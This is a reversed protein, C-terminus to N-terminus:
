SRPSSRRWRSTSKSSTRRGDPRRRRSSRRAASTSAPWWTTVRSRKGSRRTSAAASRISPACGATPGPRLRSARRRSRDRARRAGAGAGAGRDIWAAAARARAVRRAALRQGREGDRRRRGPQARQRGRLPLEPDGVEVGGADLAQERLLDLSSGPPTGDGPASGARAAVPSRRPYYTLNPGKFLTNQLHEIWHPALYGYLAEVRPVECHLDADIVRRPPAANPQVSSGDSM